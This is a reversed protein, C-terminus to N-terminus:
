DRRFIGISFFALMMLILSHTLMSDISNYSPWFLVIMNVASVVEAVTIASFAFFILLLRPTKYEFYTLAAVFSLFSGLIIGALHISTHVGHGHLFHPLFFPFGITAIIGTIIVLFTFKKRNDLRTKQMIKFPIKTLLFINTYGDFL